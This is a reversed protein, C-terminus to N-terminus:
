DDIPYEKQFKVHGFFAQEMQRIPSQHFSQIGQKWSRMLLDSHPGKFVMVLLVSQQALNGGHRSAAVSM